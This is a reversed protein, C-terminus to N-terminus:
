LYKGETLSVCTCPTLVVTSEFGPGSACSTKVRICYFGCTACCWFCLDFVIRRHVICVYMRFCVFIGFSSFLLIYGVICSVAGRSSVSSICMCSCYNYGLNKLWVVASVNVGGGFRPKSTTTMLLRIAQLSRTKRSKRRSNGKAM